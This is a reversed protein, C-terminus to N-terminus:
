RAKSSIDITTYSVRLLPIYARYKKLVKRLKQTLSMTITNTSM